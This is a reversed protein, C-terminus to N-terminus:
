DAGNVFGTVLRVRGVKAWNGKDWNDGFNDLAGDVPLEVLLERGVM